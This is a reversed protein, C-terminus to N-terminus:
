LDVGVSRGCWDGSLQNGSQGLDIACDDAEYEIPPDFVTGGVSISESEFILATTATPQVAITGQQEITGTITIDYNEDADDDRQVYACESLEYTLEVETSGQEGNSTATGFVHAEGGRLCDTREDQEGVPKGQLTLNYVLKLMERLGRLAVSDQCAADCVPAEPATAEAGCSPLLALLAVAFLLRGRLRCGDSEGSRGCRRAM